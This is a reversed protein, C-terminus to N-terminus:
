RSLRAYDVSQQDPLLSEPITPHVATASSDLHQLPCSTQLHKLLAYKSMSSVSQPYREDNM